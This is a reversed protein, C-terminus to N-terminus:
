VSKVYINGSHTVLHRDLHSRKFFAFDCGPHECIFKKEAQNHFDQLHSKLLKQSRFGKECDEISCKFPKATNHVVCHGSLAGSSRFEKDCHRCKYLKDVKHWKLHRRMNDESHFMKECDEYTCKFQKIRSSHINVLHKKLNAKYNSKYTCQPCSFKKPGDPDHKVVHSKLSSEYKFEKECHPCKFPVPGQCNEMHQELTVGVCHIYRSCKRCLKHDMRDKHERHMHDKLEDDSECFFSCRLCMYISHSHLHRALMARKNATYECHQCNYVADPKSKKRSSCQNDSKNESSVSENGKTFSNDLNEKDENQNEEEKNESENQEDHDNKCENENRVNSTIYTDVSIKDTEKNEGISADKDRDIEANEGNENEQRQMELKAQYVYCKKLHRTNAAKGVSVKKCYSCVIEELPKMKRKEKKESKEGDVNKDTKGQENNTSEDNEMKESEDNDKEDDKSEKENNRKNDSKSEPKSINEDDAHLSESSKSENKEDGSKIHSGSENCEETAKKGLIKKKRTRKKKEKVPLSEKKEISENVNEDKSKEISDTKDSIENSEDIVTKIDNQVVPVKNKKKVSKPKLIIDAKKGFKTKPSKVVKKNKKLSTEVAPSESENKIIFDDDKIKMFESEDFDLKRKKPTSCRPSKSRSRKKKGSSDTEEKNLELEEDSQYKRNKVPTRKSSRPSISMSDSTNFSSKESGERHTDDIDTDVTLQLKQKLKASRSKTKSKPSIKEKSGLDVVCNNLVEGKSGNDKKKNSLKRKKPEKVSTTKRLKTHSEPKNKESVTEVKKKEVFNEGTDEANNELVKKLKKPPTKKKGSTGSSDIDALQLNEDKNKTELNEAKKDEEIEEDEDDIHNEQVGSDVDEDFIEEDKDSSTDLNEEEAQASLASLKSIGEDITVLGPERARAKDIRKPEKYTRM